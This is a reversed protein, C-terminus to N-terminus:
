VTPGSVVEKGKGKDQSPDASLEIPILDKLFMGPRPTATRKPGRTYTTLM